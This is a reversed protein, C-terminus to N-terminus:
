LEVSNDIEVPSGNQLKLQGATVVQDGANIGKLISVEDARREGVTVYQRYAKLLPKKKDKGEKKILFVSDGHLSYAIATQPLTIVNKQERLLVEVSAFMGPYLQNDKNPLTAQVLINRTAQDVKSNIANIAGMLSKGSGLNVSIKVPQQLYLENLFQEPLNFKVYLPDLTQLTVMNTGASVYQGLDINRIGIKGDFPATITKQKIKALIQDVGASAEDFQALLTDLQTLSVANKAVLGKNRDYNLKALRAQAQSDKLQAEEVSTDLVVLIDGKKVFQGSQFRIEKVIGSTEASIDVGNVASLTGVSTLKSQWNKPTAISASITVAPPTYHSMLYSFLIKKAGYWLFIIGFIIGVYKLMRKM